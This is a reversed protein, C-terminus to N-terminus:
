YSGNIYKNINIVQVVQLGCQFDRDKRKQPNYSDKEALSSKLSAFKQMAENDVVKLYNVVVETKSHPKINSNLQRHHVENSSTTRFRDEYRNWITPLMHTGKKGLILTNVFYQLFKFLSVRPLETVSPLEDLIIDLADDIFEVPILALAFFRKVWFKFVQNTFYYVRLGGISIRKQIANIYHFWCGKISVAYNISEFVIHMANQIGGEFDASAIEVVLPCAERKEQVANILELGVVHKVFCKLAKVYTAQEKNYLFM